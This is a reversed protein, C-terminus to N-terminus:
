ETPSARNQPDRVSSSRLYFDASNADTDHGNGLLTDAGTGNMTAESSGPLAKREFSRAGAASGPHAPLPTGEGQVATPGFGVADAVSGDPRILRIAGSDGLGTAPLLWSFNSAPGSAPTIYGATNATLLFGKSALVAGAGFVVRDVWTTAIASKTQLRWQNLDVDAFTPNYLEVFEDFASTAGRPAFESIVPHNTVPVQQVTLASTLVTAGLTASLTGTGTAMADIQASVTASTSDALVTVTMPVVGITNPMLSLTIVTNTAPPIDLRLTFTQLGGATVAATGPDLAILRPVDNPGLVRVLATRTDPGLTATLTVTGGDTSNAGRLPVEAFLGGDPVFLLGGDGVQVEPGSSTVTVATDGFAGNSLRAFMPTPLTLGADERVYVLAPALSVLRPPGSVVDSDFRPELKSNGNRLDLVGTLSLYSQNIAPFPTTLFLYDNVRLSGNIVFENTPATDSTGPAPAIDTVTVADVRILVGELAAARGGDTAVDVPNVLAPAPLANGSSAVTVGGDAASLSGTLQIQGFYSSPTASPINLRDGPLVGSSPAYVFVGSYDGGDYGVDSPSVQLFYGTSGVATVLANSLAVATGAPTQGLKIAYITSPCAANGPNPDNPCADCVDGKLDGDTDTQTTNAINPCNDTANPVTDGDRDNPDFATCTTTNANLPCVDCVDGTGDSDADAQVMSDMPRVPNFVMPCNDSTDAIGDKDTDTSAVTYITSGLHSNTGKPSTASREPVCSPENTPTMGNCYFLPYTNTNASQLLAYTNAANTGTLAPYEARICARKPTGCVDIVDCMGTTDFASVLSQDGYLVKGGRMTMVVDQPQADIVSRFFSGPKRKFIAVDGLKGVAIRGISAATSTADAGGAAVLRWTQEDNLVSNFYTRNLSDACQLERLINMSGSITWDTGLAINVGLRFYLPIAATDGYLSVNSRPSWVLSTGTQAVLAIDRATLAIGHVLATRNSLIGNNTQTLCVFENRASPEIGESVHPLYGVPGQPATPLAPYGCGSTLEGGATDNLPFTDSNVGTSGALTGLQGSANADLNRLMGPNGTSSYTAGVIATTGSMVQRLEAWRIQTAINSNGSALRTHGQNGNRWDHRHEYRETTRMLPSSQFSIHDHSNILGPSVIAQPCLLQTATAAGTVTSCDCAACTIAGTSDILVQGGVYTVGDTLVVGTILRGTDGATVACTQGILPVRQNIGICGKITSTNTFAMCNAECGDGAVLNGDDCFESGERKGNGCSPTLTCDNECGDGPTLNMDDCEETGEPTGNGCVQVGGGGGVGGGMAGGGGTAGGGTMGGGTGSGGGAGGGMSGGGGGMAGGGGGGTATVNLCDAECGDGDTTNGDDCAEGTEVKANGCVARPNPCATLAACCAVGVFLVRLQPTM